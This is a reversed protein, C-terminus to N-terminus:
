IGVSGFWRRPQLRGEPTVEGLGLLRQDAGEIAVPGVEECPWPVSGGHDLTPLLEDEPRVFRWGDLAARAPLLLADLAAVGQQAVQGLEELTRMPQQGFPGVEIRRLSHLHAVQGVAKAWDEALTRVYTGKSCSVDLLALGDAFSLLDLAHIEVERPEREVELGERALEYLRQGGQKIASYMPPIQRIRGTLSQLAARLRLPELGAPDSRAIVEGELDGTSRLEGFRVEALYRKRSDLLQASLRTAQGLCIPLLGTALPDLTGTHGAKDAQYLRRVRLLADNSSLGRPKDLLLVGHVARRPRRVSNM